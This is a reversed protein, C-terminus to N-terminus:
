HRLKKTGKNVIKTTFFADFIKGSIDDPIGVGTDQFSVSLMGGAEHTEILLEGKGSMAEIANKIINSFVHHLGMDIIHERTHEFKRTVRIADLKGPFCDLADDILRSIESIKRSHAVSGSNVQRSFELLSHTTNAIRQLGKKIELLYEKEVSNDPVHDLLMNTYRMIGDLPNNVEHVVGAALKGM